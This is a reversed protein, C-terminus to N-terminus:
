FVMQNTKGIMCGITKQLIRDSCQKILRTFIIEGRCRLVAAGWFRLVVAGCCGLVGAGCCGLVGAGCCWLM